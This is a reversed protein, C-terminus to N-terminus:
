TCLIIKSEFINQVSFKYHIYEAAPTFFIEERRYAYLNYWWAKSFVSFLNLIDKKSHGVITDDKVVAVACRDEDDFYRRWDIYGM